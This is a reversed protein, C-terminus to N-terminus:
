AGVHVLGVFLQAVKVLALQHGFALGLLEEVQRVADLDEEDGVFSLNGGERLRGGEPDEPEFFLELM